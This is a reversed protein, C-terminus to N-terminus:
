QVSYQRADLITEFAESVGDMVVVPICGHLIADVYRHPLLLCADLDTWSSKIKM